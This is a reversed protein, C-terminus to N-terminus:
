AATSRDPFATIYVLGVKKNAFLKKLEIHRKPNMPGHSTVAKVLLLWKRRPSYLVM